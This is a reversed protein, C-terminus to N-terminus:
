RTSQLDRNYFKQMFMLSHNIWKEEDPKFTATKSSESSGKCEAVSDWVSQLWSDESRSFKLVWSFSWQRGVMIQKLVGTSQWLIMDSTTWKIWDWSANTITGLMRINGTCSSIASGSTCTAIPINRRRYVLVGHQTNTRNLLSLVSWWPTLFLYRCKKCVGTYVKSLSVFLLEIGVLFSVFINFYRSFFDYWFLKWISVWPITYIQRNVKKVKGYHNLFITMTLEQSVNFAAGAITTTHCWSNKICWWANRVIEVNKGAAVSM